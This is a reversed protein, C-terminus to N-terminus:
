GSRHAPLGHRLGALLGHQEPQGGGPQPQGAAHLQDGRDAPGGADGARDASGGSSDHSVPQYLVLASAHRVADGTGAGDGSPGTAAGWWNNTADVVAQSQNVVGGYLSGDAGTYTQSNGYIAANHIQVNAPGLNNKDPEGIRIGRENGTFIGGEITVNTLSAPYTNYSTADDRAKIM